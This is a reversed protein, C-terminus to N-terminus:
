NDVFHVGTYSGVLYLLLASGAGSFGRHKGECDGRRRGKCFKDCVSTQVGLGIGKFM